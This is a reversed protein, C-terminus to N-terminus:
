NEKEVTSELLTRIKSDFAKIIQYYVPYFNKIQYMLDITDEKQREVLNDFSLLDLLLDDLSISIMTKNSEIVQVFHIFINKTVARMKVLEIINKLDDEKIISHIGGPVSGKLACKYIKNTSYLSLDHDKNLKNGCFICIDKEPDPEKNINMIKELDDNKFVKLNMELISLPTIFVLLRNPNQNKM